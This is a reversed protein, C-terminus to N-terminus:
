MLQVKASVQRKSSSGHWVSHLLELTVTFCYLCVVWNPLEKLRARSCIHRVATGPELCLATHFGTIAFKYEEMHKYAMARNYHLDPLNKM